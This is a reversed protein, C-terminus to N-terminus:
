LVKLFLLQVLVKLLDFDDLFCDLSVIRQAKDDRFRNARFLHKFLQVSTGILENGINYKYQKPFKNVLKVILYILDYMSRFVPLQTTKM